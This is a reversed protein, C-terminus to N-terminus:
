NLLQSITHKLDQHTLTKFTEFKIKKDKSITKIHSFSYSNGVEKIYLLLIKEGKPFREFHVKNGKQTGDLVVFNDLSVLKITGNNENKVAIEIPNSEIKFRRDINIFGLNFISTSYYRNSAYRSARTKAYITDQYWRKRIDALMMYNTIKEYDRNSRTYKVKHDPGKKRKVRRQRKKWNTKYRNLNSRIAKKSKGKELWKNIYAERHRAVELRDAASLKKLDYKKWKPINKMNVKTPTLAWDIGSDNVQGRFNQFDTENSISPSRYQKQVPVNVEIRKNEALYLTDGDQSFAEINLMGRSELIQDGNNTNLNSLITTLPDLIEAVKLVVNDSVPEGSNTVFVNPPIKLVCGQELYLTKTKNTPELHYVDSKLSIPNDLSKKPASETSQILAKYEFTLRNFSQIPYESPNFYLHEDKFFYQLRDIILGKEDLLSALQEIREDLMQQNQDPYIEFTINSVIGTKLMKNITSNIDNGSAHKLVNSSEDFHLDIVKKQSYINFCLLLNLLLLITKMTTYITNTITALDIYYRHEGVDITYVAIKRYM